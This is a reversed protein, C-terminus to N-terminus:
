EDRRTKRQLTGGVVLLGLGVVIVPIAAFGTFPLDDDGTASTQRADQSNSTSDEGLSTGVGPGTKPPPYEASSADGQGSSGQFALTAGAGSTVFGMALISIIAIKSRMFGGNSPRRAGLNVRTRATRLARDLELPTPEVRAARLREATPGLDGDGNHDIDSHKSMVM